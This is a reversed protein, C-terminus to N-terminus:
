VTWEDRNNGEGGNREISPAVAAILGYLKHRVLSSFGPESPKIFPTNGIVRPGSIAVRIWCITISVILKGTALPDRRYIYYLMYCMRHGM